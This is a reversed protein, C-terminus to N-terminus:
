CLQLNVVGLLFEPQRYARLILWAAAVALVLGITHWVVRRSLAPPRTLPARQPEIM